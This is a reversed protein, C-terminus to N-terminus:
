VARCSKAPSTVEEVVGQANTLDDDCHYIERFRTFVTLRKHISIPNLEQRCHLVQTMLCQQLDTHDPAATPESSARQDVTSLWPGHYFNSCVWESCIHENGLDEM